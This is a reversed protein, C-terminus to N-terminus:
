SRPARPWPEVEYPGANLLNPPRYTLDGRMRMQVSEHVLPKPPVFRPRFLNARHKEKWHDSPDRFRKPYFEAARWVGTLSNHLPGLHDPPEPAEPEGATAPPPKPSGPKPIAVDRLNTDVLLGAETSQEVMWELAIQSLGSEREPHSGGVDCHDGAFWVQKVNGASGWMNQRFFARREDIAIAHRVTAVSPNNTTHPLVMPDWAWGVSSVTDWVGLFHIPCRQGFASAFGEWVAKRREYKFVKSAYPVLNPSRGELLCVKHLMAAVARATYAGRSFGFIFLRDGPQWCNMLFTYADEINKTLGLGIALGLVKTVGKSFTTLAAASSFTGLGPDYFCLQTAKDKKLISFLKVVNTNRDGYENSTGDCCLVINRGKTAALASLDAPDPGPNSEPLRDTAM